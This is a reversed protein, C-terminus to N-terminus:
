RFRGVYSKIAADFVERTVVRESGEIPPIYAADWPKAGLFIQMREIQTMPSGHRQLTHEYATVVKPSVQFNDHERVVHGAAILRSLGDDLEGYNFVAHNIADGAAIIGELTAGDSNGSSCIVSLLIWADAWIFETATDSM